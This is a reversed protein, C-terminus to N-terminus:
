SQLSRSIAQVLTTTTTRTIAFATAFHWKARDAEEIDNSIIRVELAPVGAMACARLVAFGEMAEVECRHTGGVRGTTGITLMHADPMASRATALLHADPMLMSPAFRDDVGLDEYQSRAGIVVTGPLLAATRRAGAIGVHLVHTPRHEMLARTTAAAADVPGVGCCCSLFSPGGLTSEALEQVTAAVVLIRLDSSM